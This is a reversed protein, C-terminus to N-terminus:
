FTKGHMYERDLNYEMKALIAEALLLGRGKSFDMIRIVTDALEETLSDFEVIKDSAPNGQRLAELAESLESHMLAIAEGANRDKKWFGQRCSNDYVKTSVKNWEEIFKM